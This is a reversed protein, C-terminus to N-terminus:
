IERDQQDAQSRAHEVRLREAELLTFADVMRAPWHRLDPGYLSASQAKFMRTSRM